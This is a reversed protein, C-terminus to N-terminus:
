AKEKLPSWTVDQFANSHLVPLRSAPPLACVDFYECRGFKTTCQNTMRPYFGDGAVGLFLDLLALTNLRWEDVNDQDVPFVRQRPPEDRTPPKSKRVPFANIIFGRFPENLYQQGAWVYGLTQSSHQFSDYYTKGFVSTTKHDVVYLGLDRRVILDIRGTWVIRVGRVIGLPISFPLECCLGSPGTVVEWDHALYDSHIYEDLMQSAKLLDRHDGTPVNISQFATTLAPQGADPGHRFVEDLASHVAQGFSLAMREDAPKRKEVLHYQAKRTCTMIYELSSHDIFWVGDKIISLHSYPTTM